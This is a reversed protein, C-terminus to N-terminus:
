FGEVEEKLRGGRRSVVAEDNSFFESGFDLVAQDDRSIVFSHLLAPQLPDLPDPTMLLHTQSALTQSPLCARRVKSVGKRKENESM